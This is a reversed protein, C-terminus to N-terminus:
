TGDMSCVPQCVRCDYMYQLRYSMTGIVLRIIDICARSVLGWAMGIDFSYPSGSKSSSINVYTYPRRPPTYSPMVM